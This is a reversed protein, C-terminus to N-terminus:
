PLSIVEVLKVNSQSRLTLIKIIPTIINEFVHNNMTSCSYDREFQKQLFDIFCSFAEPINLRDQECTYINNVYINKIMLIIKKSEENSLAMDGGNGCSLIVAELVKLEKAQSLRKGNFIYKIKQSRSENLPQIIERSSSINILVGILQVSHIYNSFRYCERKFIYDNIQVGEYPNQHFPLNLVNLLFLLAMESSNSQDMKRLISGAISSFLSVSQTIVRSTTKICAEKSFFSSTTSINERYKYAQNWSQFLNILVIPVDLYSIARGIWRIVGGAYSFGVAATLPSLTLFCISLFMILRSILSGSVCKTEICTRVEDILKPCQYILTPINFIALNIFDGLMNTQELTLPAYNCFVSNFNEKEYFLAQTLLRSSVNGGSRLAYPLKECFSFVSSHCGDFISSRANEYRRKYVEFSCLVEKQTMDNFSEFEARFDLDILYQHEKENELLTIYQEANEMNDHNSLCSNLSSESGSLNLDPYNSLFSNLSSESASVSQNCSTTNTIINETSNRLNIINHSLNQLKIVCETETAYTSGVAFHKLSNSTFM